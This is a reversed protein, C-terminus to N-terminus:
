MEHFMIYTTTERMTHHDEGTDMGKLKSSFLFFGIEMKNKPSVTKNKLYRKTVTCFLLGVNPMAKWAINFRVYNIKM